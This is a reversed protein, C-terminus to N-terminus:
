GDEVDVGVLEALLCACRYDLDAAEGEVVRAVHKTPLAHSLDLAHIEVCGPRTGLVSSPFRLEGVKFGPPAEHRLLTLSKPRSPDFRFPVRGRRAAAIGRADAARARV